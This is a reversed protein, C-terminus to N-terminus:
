IVSRLHGRIIFQERGWPRCLAEDPRRQSRPQAAQRRRSEGAATARVRRAVHWTDQVGEEGHVAHRGGLVDADVHRLRGTDFKVQRRLIM